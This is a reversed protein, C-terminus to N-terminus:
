IGDHTQEELLKLYVSSHGHERGHKMLAMILGDVNGDTEAAWRALTHASSAGPMTIQTRAGFGPKPGDVRCVMSMDHEKCLKAARLLLPAVQYDYIQEQTPSACGVDWDPLLESAWCWCEGMIQGFRLVAQHSCGHLMCRDQEDFHWNSCGDWKVHGTLYPESLALDEVADACSVSGARPWMPKHDPVTWASVDYIEFDVLYDKVTAVATFDLDEFTRIM